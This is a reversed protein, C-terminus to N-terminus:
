QKNAELLEQIAQLLEKREIPKTFHVDAGIKEAAALYANTMIADPAYELPAMNGGGSVAIIKVAPSIQRIEKILNIGDMGPMIIDTIVLDAPTSRFIEIGAEGDSALDVEYHERKLVKALVDRIESEDDVILIRKMM